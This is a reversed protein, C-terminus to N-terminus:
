GQETVLTRLEAPPLPRARLYGQWSDCGITALRARQLETEVGEAVVKLGLRHAMAVIADVIAAADANAHIDDIFSKDVKLEDLPFTRLYALSSYGTGFDDISLRVGMEKLRKLIDVNHQADDMLISETLEITLCDPEVGSTEIAKRLTEILCENRLQRGSVNIAVNMAPLGDAVWAQQQRCAEQIAWEGMPVILDTEEALTIFSAPSLLGKSPHQWRMLAEVGTILGTALNIKPQYHLMLENPELAKRLDSELRMREESRANIDASYYHYTNGGSHKAFYTASGANKLLRDPELGDDPHTAIGISLNLFVERGEVVFPDKMIDLVRQAIGSTLEAHPIDSLVITFEDGGIRSLNRSSHNTGLRAVEDSARVCEELRRAFSALVQDGLRPGLSDNVKKFKDLGIHMLSARGGTREMRRLAWNLREMFMRRNPLGTLPDYYALQDQYAKAALTNRLRLTLESPDVPKALFDTAGLELAMLRSDADVSSTLILVPIFRFRDDSRMARMIDYGSVEPMMLDLLLVDPIERELLDMAETSQDTTIFRSYGADELFTKIVETTIPEDDVMMITATKLREDLSRAKGALVNAEGPDEGLSSGTPDLETFTEM